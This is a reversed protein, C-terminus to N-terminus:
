IGLHIHALWLLRVMGMFLSRALEASYKLHRFRVLASLLDFNALSDLNELTGSLPISGCLCIAGIFLLSGLFGVTVFVTLSGLIGVIGMYESHTSTKSLVVYLSRAMSLLSGLDHLRTLFASRDSSALSGYVDLAGILQLSDINGITVFYPLSDLNGFTGFNPLSVHHGILCLYHDFWM